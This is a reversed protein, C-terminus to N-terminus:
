TTGSSVALWVNVPEFLKLPTLVTSLAFLRNEPVKVPLPAFRVVSLAPLIEEPVTASARREPFTANSFPSWVKAPEFVKLPTLESVLALLRTEPAHGPLPALRAATPAAALPALESIVESDARTVGSDSAWPPVPAAVAGPARAFRPDAALPAFESM